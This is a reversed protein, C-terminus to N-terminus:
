RTECLRWQKKDDGNKMKGESFERMEETGMSVTIFERSIESTEVSKPAFFLNTVRTQEM